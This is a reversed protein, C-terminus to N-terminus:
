NQRLKRDMYEKVAKLQSYYKHVFKRLMSEVFFRQNCNRCNFPFSYLFNEEILVNKYVIINQCFPCKVTLDYVNGIIKKRKYKAYIRYRSITDFVEKKMQAYEKDTMGETMNYYHTSSVENKIFEAENKIIGKRLCHKYIESGPYPQIFALNIQSRANKKWWSLTENATEKTEAIDGFIFNAQIGIGANITKVFANEIMQPTIPKRMSKLVKQSFSEFGYSIVVGGSDKINKLVEDDIKQVTMQPIWKLEWPIEERLKRIGDCIEFLRSKNVSICEDYFGIMNIQYKKVMERLEDMISKVSRARYTSYHYCFTCNFPCGRSGIIPYIRTYDFSNHSFSFNTHQHNLYESFGMSEFDPWPLPDLDKIPERPETIILNGSEDKFVLGKVRKLDQKKEISELLEIITEEGEGIVAFDPNLLNFMLEPEAIVIVGGLIIKIKSNFSRVSNIIEKTSNFGLSINGIAVFDYEKKILAAKVLDTTKGESHNLNFCDVNYEQKKLISAIYGLGLPFSYKYNIKDLNLQRPVIILIKENKM